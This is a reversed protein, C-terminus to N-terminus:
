KGPDVDDFQDISVHRQFFRAPVVRGAAGEMVFFGGGEGDARCFLEIVAKATACVARGDTEDHLVLANAKDVRDAFEGAPQAHAYRFVAAGLGYGM